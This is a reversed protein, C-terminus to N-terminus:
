CKRGPGPSCAPGGGAALAAPAEPQAQLAAFFAGELAFAAALLALAAAAVAKKM